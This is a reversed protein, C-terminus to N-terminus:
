LGGELSSGVVMKLRAEDRIRKREAIAAPSRDLEDARERAVHPLPTTPNVAGATKQERWKAVSSQIKAPSELMNMEPDDHLEVKRYWKAWERIEDPTMTPSINYESWTHKPQGTLVKQYKGNLAATYGWVEKVVDYMPNAKRAPKEPEEIPADSPEAGNPALSDKKTKGERDETHLNAYPLRHLNAYPTQASKRLTDQEDTVVVRQAELKRCQRSVEAFSYVSPEGPHYEVRLAGKLEMSRKARRVSDDSVGMYESITVLSPKAEGKLSDYRFAMIHCMVAFENASLGVTEGTQIDVFKHYNRLIWGPISVYQQDDLEADGWRSIFRESM